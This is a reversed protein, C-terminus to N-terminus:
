LVKHPGFCEYHIQSQQIGLDLLQKVTLRMFPLPGCCYIEANNPLYTANLKALDILGKFQYDQDQRDSNLPQQYWTFSNFNEYQDCIDNVRQKFAHQDGNHTAHLWTVSQSCGQLTELMSLMPTLGVGASILVIPATSERKLFFDGAPPVLQVTEGIGVYDHLFNSAQGQPERKVSIRYTRGNPACSLSYQRITQSQFQDSNLYIGLYQGPKFDAVAKGDCPKFVFSTISLSESKKEIVEFERTGRWGGECLANTAYIEEERQTFIDALVEYAEAWAEIVTQEPGLLEDITALLHHGVIHYQDATVLFSTHKQAIKEVAPLLAGLNEINAAYGCLANFLAEIQDGNKQHSMNFIDKLEPNHALMREYFYKTLKPGTKEILPATAKVIEITQQSLM